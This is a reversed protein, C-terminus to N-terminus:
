NRRTRTSNQKSETSRCLPCDSRQHHRIATVVRRSVNELELEVAARLALCGFTLSEQAGALTGEWVTMQHWTLPRPGPFLDALERGVDRRTM